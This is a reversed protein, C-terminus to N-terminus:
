LAFDCSIRADYPCQEFKKRSKRLRLFDHCVLRAHGFPRLFDGFSSEEVVGEHHSAWLTRVVADPLGLHTEDTPHKRHANLIAM